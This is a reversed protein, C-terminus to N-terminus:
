KKKSGRGANEAEEMPSTGGREPGFKPAKTTGTIKIHVFTGAGRKSFFPDVPKLMWRKWGTQTQSVKADLMLAGHFDLIDTGLDINGGLNVTAGPIEFGLTRFTIVENAMAFSGSMRHVVEDIETNNPQGMGRRAFSDIKAQMTSRLFKGGTIDFDGDLLLKGKVRGDQPPIGITTNLRIVGEMNPTGKMALRLVDRLDGAPISAKLSITRHTDGDHKVVVGSTTLRTSGLKAKVPKLETNGNTGDVLVEFDAVLPVPNGASKMRFDPVRAEGKAEIRALSGQFTGTSQLIGAIGKFVGLDANEFLYEGTLPTDGPEEASWPGFTGTSHIEGPPKPNTLAAEYRMAVDKGASYLRIDHLDFRLPVKKSDKPLIELLADRIIVEEIIVNSNKGADSDTVGNKDGFKAREGKPPLHLEMGELIVQDVTKAAGFLSGLDVSARFRKLILLPPIDRRGKHRLVINDGVASILVGEGGHFLLKMPSMAPVSVRISGVEVEGDFRERLYKIAQERVYPDIRRAVIAAASFLGAVVLLVGISGWLLWRLKRSRPM